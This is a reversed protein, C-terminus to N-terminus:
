PYSIHVTLKDGELRYVGPVEKGKEGENPSKLITFDIERPGKSADLKFELEFPEGSVKGGQFALEPGVVEDKNQPEMGAALVSAVKGGGQLKDKDTKKDEAAVAGVLVAAALGVTLAKSWIM